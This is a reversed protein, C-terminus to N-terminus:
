KLIGIADPCKSATCPAAHTHCSAHATQAAEGQRSAAWYVVPSSSLIPHQQQQQASESTFRESKQWLGCGLWESELGTLFCRDRLVWWPSRITPPLHSTPSHPPSSTHPPSPHCHFSFFFFM